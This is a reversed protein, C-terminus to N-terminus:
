SLNKWKLLVVIVSINDTSGKDFSLDVLTKAVEKPHVGLSLEQSAKDIAEQYTVCDWLGDCALIIFDDNPQLEYSHMYPENAVYDHRAEPKKYTYDGLSRSVALGFVRGKVVIAGMSLLRINEDEDDPKHKRSLVTYTYKNTNPIKSGLLAESDGLNAIFLTEEQIYVLVVTSGSRFDGELSKKTILNDTKIIGNRLSDYVHRKDISPSSALFRVIDKHLFDKAILFKVEVTDMMYQM